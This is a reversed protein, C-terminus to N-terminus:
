IGSNGFELIWWKDYLLISGYVCCIRIGTFFGMKFIWGLSKLPHGFLMWVLNGLVLIGILGEM